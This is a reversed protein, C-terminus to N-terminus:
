KAPEPSYKSIIQPLVTREFRKEAAICVDFERMLEAPQDSLGGAHWGMGYERQRRLM